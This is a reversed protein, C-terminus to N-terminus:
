VLAHVLGVSSLVVLLAVAVRRVTAVDAATYRRTGLRAGVLMPVVLAAARGVARGDVVGSVTLLAVGAADLLLFYANMSARGAAMGVPTGLYFVVVPPGGASTAGNLVGSLAGVGATALRSPMRRVQVGLGIVVAAVLVASSVALQMARQPLHALVAVGAPLGAVAGAFLPRVSRWQVDARLGPLLAVAIVVDLLLVLPVVERPAAILTLGSSWVLAAGFGAYARIFAGLGVVGVAWTWEGAGFGLWM